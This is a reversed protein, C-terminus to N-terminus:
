TDRIGQLGSVLQRVATRWSKRIAKEGDNTPTMNVGRGVNQVPAPRPTIVDPIPIIYNAATTVVFVSECLPVGEPVM